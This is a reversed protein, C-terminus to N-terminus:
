SKLQKFLKNKFFIAIFLNRKTQMHDTLLNHSSGIIVLHRILISFKM